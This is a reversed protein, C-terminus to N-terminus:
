VLLVIYDDRVIQQIFDVRIFTLKDSQYRKVILEFCYGGIVRYIGYQSFIVCSINVQQYIFDNHLLDFKDMLDSRKLQDM